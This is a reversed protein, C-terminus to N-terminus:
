QVVNSVKRTPFAKPLQPVLINAKKNYVLPCVYTLTAHTIQSRCPTESPPCKTVSCATYCIDNAAPFAMEIGQYNIQDATCLGYRTRVPPTLHHNATTSYSTQGKVRAVSRRCNTFWQPLIHPYIYALQLEDLSVRSHVLWPRRGPPSPAPIKLELHRRGPLQFPGAPWQVFFRAFSAQHDMQRRWAKTAGASGRHSRGIAGQKLPAHGIAGCSGAGSCGEPYNESRALPRQLHRDAALGRQRTMNSPVIVANNASSTAIICRANGLWLTSFM